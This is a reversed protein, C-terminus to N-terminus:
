PWWCECDRSCLRGNYCNCKKGCKRCGCDCSSTVKPKVTRQEVAKTPKSEVRIGYRVECGAALLPLVFLLRTMRHGRQGQEASAVVVGLLCLWLLTIM